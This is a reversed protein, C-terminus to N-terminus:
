ETSANMLAEHRQITTLLSNIQDRTVPKDPLPGSVAFDRSKNSHDSPFPDASALTRGCRPCLMGQRAVEHVAEGCECTVHAYM